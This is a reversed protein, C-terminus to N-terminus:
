SKRGTIRLNSLNVIDIENPGVIVLRTDPRLLTKATALVAPDVTISHVQRVSVQAPAKRPRRGDITYGVTVTATDRVTSVAAM